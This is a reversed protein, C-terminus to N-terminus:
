ITPSSTMKLTRRSESANLLHSLLKQLKKKRMLVKQRQLSQSIQHISKEANESVNKLSLGKDKIFKDEFFEV